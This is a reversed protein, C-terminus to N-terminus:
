SRADMNNAFRRSNTMVRSSAFAAAVSMQTPVPEGCEPCRGSVNGTLRYGCKLCRGRRKCANRRLVKRGILIAPYTGVTVAIAWVPCSLYIMYSIRVGPGYSYYRFAFSPLVGEIDSWALGHHFAVTRSKMGFAYVHGDHIWAAITWQQAQPKWLLRTSYSAAWISGLGLVATALVIIFAKRKM